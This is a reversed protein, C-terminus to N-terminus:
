GCFKVRDNVNWEKVPESAVVRTLSDVVLQPRGPCVTLVAHHVRQFDLLPSSFSLEQVGTLSAARCCLDFVHQETRQPCSVLEVDPVDPEVM